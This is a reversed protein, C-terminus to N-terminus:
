GGGTNSIGANNVLLDLRGFEAEISAAAAPISALAPVDIQVARPGNGIEAAAHQGRQLDRSGVLVTVGHEALEKAVQKGVGQNAGTILAIRDPVTSRRRDQETALLM